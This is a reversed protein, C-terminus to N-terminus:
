SGLPTLAVSAMTLAAAPSAGKRDGARLHFAVAGAFYLVKRSAASAALVVSASRALGPEQDIGTPM